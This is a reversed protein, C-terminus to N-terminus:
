LRCPRRSRGFWCWLWCSRRSRSFWCWLRCSRRSRSFGTLNKKMRLESHRGGTWHILLVIESAADDVDAVIEGVLIRVIRQKLHMDTAPSNWVAPLDQALSCLTAKDPIRSVHPPLENDHLRQEVEGVTSLAANWRAELEGAVLRNDPDVAEYRRATLRAEYRAQELEL